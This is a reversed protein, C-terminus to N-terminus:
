KVLNSEMLYDGAEIEDAPMASAADIEVSVCSGLSEVRILLRSKGNRRILFGRIGAFPGDCIRVPMGVKDLRDQTVEVNTGSMKKLSDLLSQSVTAPKGEFCVYRIVDAINLVEYRRRPTIHVFIYNPFLPMELKKIRDSWKRLVFHVPFFSPIGIKELADSVKKETRPMTYAVHWGPLTEIQSM